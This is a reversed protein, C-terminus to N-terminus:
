VREDRQKRNSKYGAEERHDFTEWNELKCARGIKVSKENPGGRM